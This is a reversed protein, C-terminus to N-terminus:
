SLTKWDNDNIIIITEVNASDSIAISTKKISFPTTVGLTLKDYIAGENVYFIYTNSDGVTTIKILYFYFYNNDDYVKRYETVDYITDLILTSKTLFM